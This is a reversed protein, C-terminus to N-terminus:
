CRTLKKLGTLGFDQPILICLSSQMLCVITAQIDLSPCIPISPICFCTSFSNNVQPKNWVWGHLLEVRGLQKDTNPTKPGQPCCFGSEGCRIPLLFKLLLNSLSRIKKEWWCKCAPDTIETHPLLARETYYSYEQSM